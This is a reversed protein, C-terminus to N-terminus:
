TSWQLRGNIGKVINKLDEIVWLILGGWQILVMAISDKQNEKLAREDRIRGIYNLAFIGWIDIQRTLTWVSLIFGPNPSELWQM